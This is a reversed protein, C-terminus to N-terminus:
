GMWTGGNVNLIEGTIFSSEPLVLFLVANAIDAPEGLRGVPILAQRRKIEAEGVRALMPTMIPGPAIVNVTIGSPATEQALAKTLAVVGAKAVAYDAQAWSGPKSGLVYGALGVRSSINVIRGYGAKLMTPLVDRCCYFCSTLNGDLVRRWAADDTDGIMKGSGEVGANNVLIDIRGYRALADDVLRRVEAAVSVDTRAAVIDGGRSEIEGVATALAEAGRAVAVVRAGQAALLAATAKGIGKSAGTVIAVQNALRGEVM